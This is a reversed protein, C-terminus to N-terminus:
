FNANVGGYISYGAQPTRRYRANINVGPTQYSANIGYGATIPVGMQDRYGPSYEGGIQVVQNPDLQINASANVNELRNDVGAIDLNFPKPGYAPGQPQMQPTPLGKQGPVSSGMSMMGGLNGAAKPLAQAILTNSGGLTNSFASNAAPVKRWDDPNNTNIGPRAPFLQKLSPKTGPKLYPSQPQAPIDWQANPLLDKLTFGGALLNGPAGPVNREGGYYM